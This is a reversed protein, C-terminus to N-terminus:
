EKDRLVNVGVRKIEKVTNVTKGNKDEYWELKPLTQEKNVDEVGGVLINM